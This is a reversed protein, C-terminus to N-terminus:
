TKSGPQVMISRKRGCWRGTIQVARQKGFKRVQAFLVASNSGAKVIVTPPVSLITPYNSELNIATDSLRPIACLVVKIAVRHSPAKTARDLTLGFNGGVADVGATPSGKSDFLSLNDLPQSSRIPDDILEPAWYLLGLGLKNPLNAEVTLLSILYDAQGTQTAPFRPDIQDNSYVRHNEKKGTLSFPYMTEAIYVPKGYRLATDNLNAVLNSISGHWWLYYSLGIADFSVHHQVLHDFFWRVGANDGGRDIHIAVTIPHAGEADRVGQIAAKLLDTFKVWQAETGDLKGDPWMIGATIENGVQVAIPPTGQTILGQIFSSTYGRVRRVLGEHSLGKWAMPIPQHGPDAWGDSYHFDIILKMGSKAIRKAMEYTRDRGCWGEKPDVWVRLRAVNWGHTALTSVPDIIRDGSTYIGGESEIQPIFSIDGGKWFLPGRQAFATTVSLFLLTVLLRPTRM